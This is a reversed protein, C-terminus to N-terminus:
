PLGSTYRFYAVHLVMKLASFHSFKFETLRIFGIQYFFRVIISPVHTERDNMGQRGQLVSAPGPGQQSARAGATHGGDGGRGM